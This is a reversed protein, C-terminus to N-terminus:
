RKIGFRRVVNSQSKEYIESTSTLCDAMLRNILTDLGERLGTGVQLEKGIHLQTPSKRAITKTAWQRRVKNIARMHRSRKHNFHKAETHSLHRSNRAITGM